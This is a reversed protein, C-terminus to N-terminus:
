FVYSYPSFDACKMNAKHFSDSAVLRELVRTVDWGGREVLVM